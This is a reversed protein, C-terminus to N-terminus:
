GVLQAELAKKRLAAAFSAAMDVAPEEDDASDAV